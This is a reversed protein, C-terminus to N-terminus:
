DEQLTEAQIMQGAIFLTTALMLILTIFAQIVFGLGKAIYYVTGQTPALASAAAVVAVIGLGTGYLIPLTGMERLRVQQTKYFAEIASIDMALMFAPILFVPKVLLAISGIESISILWQPIRQVDRYGLLYGALVALVGTAAWIGAGIAIQMWLFRWFFGRGTTVLTIPEQPTTGDVAATRLFGLYLMQWVVVMLIGGSGLIFLVWEPPLPVPHATDPGMTYVIRELLLSLGAQFVVVLTVEPWRAKIIEITKHLM